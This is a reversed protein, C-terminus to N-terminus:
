VPIKGLVVEVKSHGFEAGCDPCTIGDVKRAIWAGAKWGIWLGLISLPITAAIGAGATAIGITAGVGFGLIGFGLAFITGLLTRHEPGEPTVFEDCQACRVEYRTIRAM